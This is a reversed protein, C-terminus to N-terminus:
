SQVRVGREPGQSWVGVRRQLSKAMNEGNKASRTEMRCVRAESLGGTVTVEYTALSFTHLARLANGM